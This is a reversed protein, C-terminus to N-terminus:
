KSKFYGKKECFKCYSWESKTIRDASEVLSDLDNSCIKEYYTWKDEYKPTRLTHCSAHHLKNMELTGFHNFVFSLPNTGIWEAYESEQEHFSKIMM